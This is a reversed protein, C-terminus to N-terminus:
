NRLSNRTDFRAFKFARDVFINPRKNQLMLLSIECNVGVPFQKAKRKVGEAVDEQKLKLTRKRYETQEANRENKRM